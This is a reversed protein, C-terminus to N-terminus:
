NTALFGAEKMLTQHRHEETAVWKAYEDGTMFTQNFAGNKMLDQWEPTERVKKFVDVYYAVQEATVGPSMFFGRLMLYEM